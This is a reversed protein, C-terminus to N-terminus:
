ASVSFSRAHYCELRVTRLSFLNLAGYTLSHGGHYAIGVVLSPLVGARASTVLSM